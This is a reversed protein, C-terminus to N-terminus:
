GARVASRNTGSLVAAGARAPIARSVLHRPRGVSAQEEDPALVLLDLEPAKADLGALDFAREDGLGPM